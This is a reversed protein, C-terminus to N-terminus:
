ATAGDKVELNEIYEVGLQLIQIKFLSPNTEEINLSIFGRKALYTYAQLETRSKINIIVEKGQSRVHKLYIGRLVGLRYEQSKIM